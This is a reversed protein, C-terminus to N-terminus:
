DRWVIESGHVRADYRFTANPHRRFRTLRNVRQSIPGRANAVGCPLGRHKSSEPHLFISPSPGHSGFGGTTYFLSNRFPEEAAPGARCLTRQSGCDRVGVSRKRWGEEEAARSGRCGSYAVRNVTQGISKSLFTTINPLKHGLGEAWGSGITPKLRRKPGRVPWLGFLGHGSRWDRGM